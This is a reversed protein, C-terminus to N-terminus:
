NHAELWNNGIGIEIILPVKLKIVNEMKLKVIQKIEHLESKFVDFILEDHVQLIMKSKLKNQHLAETINIMAVKIIDAASGQIPSNIANREAMARIFSNKSNIDPLYRKRKFITEVFGKEKAFNIENIMYQKVGPFTRFYENILDNAENKSIDMRQALGFASIGYIIGFNATKAKSRQEKTVKEASIKFIKSATSRHIDEEEKFAEIMNEDGCIHAM